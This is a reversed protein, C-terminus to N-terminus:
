VFVAFFFIVGPIMKRGVKLDVKLVNRTVLHFNIITNCKRRRGM